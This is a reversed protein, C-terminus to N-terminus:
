RCGAHCRCAAAAPASQRGKARCAGRLCRPAASNLLALQVRTGHVRVHLPLCACRDGCAYGSACPSRGESEHRLL